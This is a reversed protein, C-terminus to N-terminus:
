YGNTHPGTPMFIDTKITVSPHTADPPITTYPINLLKAVQYTGSIDGHITRARAAQGPAAPVSLAIAAVVSVAALVAGQKRISPVRM